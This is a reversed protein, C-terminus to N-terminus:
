AWADFRGDDDPEDPCPAFGTGGVVAAIVSVNDRSGNKMAWNALDEAPTESNMLYYELYDGNAVDSLGDSCILIIDGDQLRDTIEAVALTTYVGGGVCNTLFGNEDEDDVSLQEIIGDRFLYTRSDGANILWVKGGLWVVGTLTCGMMRFQGEDKAVANIKSSISRVSRTIGEVFDEASIDNKSFCDRLHELTMSSAVEGKEHGGMGDAILLYFAADDGFEVDTSLKEDRLMVEGITVIDENKLRVCGRDCIANINLKTAM